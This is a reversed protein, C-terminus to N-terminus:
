QITSTVVSRLQVHLDIGEDMLRDRLISLKPQDFAAGQIAAITGRRATEVEQVSHWDLSAGQKELQSRLGGVQYDHGLATGSMMVGEVEYAM